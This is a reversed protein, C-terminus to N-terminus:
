LQKGKEIVSKYKDRFFQSWGSTIKQRAADDTVLEHLKYIDEISQINEPLAYFEEDLAGGAADVFGKAERLLAPNEVASTKVLLVIVDYRKKRLEADVEIPDSSYPKAIWAPMDDGYADYFDKRVPPRNLCYKEPGDPHGVPLAWLRQGEISLVFDMFRKATEKNPPNKLISIPDPTFGTGGKPSVYGLKEPEKAVYMAGYYDICAAVAAEGIVPANAAAGSSSTYKKANALIAFLKKWSKHWDNESQLVMEYAAAISSSQSPDALILNGRMDSTGLDEWVKPEALGLERLIMKNYVFGFSSLVTGYWCGNEDYMRMGSFVPDVNALFDAPPNYKELLGEASLYQHPADGSGFLIDVECTDSMKYINRLYNLISSGGGGIDRWDVQVDADFSEKYWAKFGREIEMKINENHPSIIVVKDTKEAPGSKGCGSIFALSALIVILLKKM